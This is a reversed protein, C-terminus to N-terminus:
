IGERLVTEVVREVTEVDDIYVFENKGHINCESRLPGFQVVPMRDAFHVGDTGGLDIYLDQPKGTVDAVIDAFRKAHEGESIWPRMLTERELSVCMGGSEAFSLISERIWEWAFEGDYGPVTRVDVLIEASDPIVNGAIGSRFM